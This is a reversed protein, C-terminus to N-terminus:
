VQILNVIACKRKEMNRGGYKRREEIFNDYKLSEAKKTLETHERIFRNTNRQLQSLAVKMEMSSTDSKYRPDEDGTNFVHM